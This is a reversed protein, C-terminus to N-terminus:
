NRTASWRSPSEPCDRTEAASVCCADALMVRPWVSTVIVTKESTTHRPRGYDRSILAVHSVLLRVPRARVDAGGCHSETIRSVFLTLFPNLQIQSKTQIKKKVLYSSYKSNQTSLEKM